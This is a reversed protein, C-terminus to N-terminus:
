EKTPTVVKEVVTNAADEDIVRMSWEEEGELIPINYEEIRHM